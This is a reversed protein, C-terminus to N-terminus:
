HYLFKCKAIINKYIATLDSIIKLRLFIIKDEIIIFNLLLPLLM